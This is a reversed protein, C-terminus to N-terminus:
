FVNSFKYNHSGPFSMIGPGIKIWVRNNNHITWVSNYSFGFFYSLETSLVGNTLDLEHGPSHNNKSSKGKSTCNSSENNLVFDSFTSLSVTRFGLKTAFRSAWLALLDVSSYLRFVGSDDMLVARVASSKAWDELNIFVGEMVVVGDIIEVVIWEMPGNMGCSGICGLIKNEGISAGVEGVLGVLESISVEMEGICVITGKIGIGMISVGEDVILIKTENTSIGVEVILIGLEFTLIEFEAILVGTEIPFIGNEVGLVALEDMKVEVWVLGGKDGLSAM